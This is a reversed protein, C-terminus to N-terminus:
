VVEGLGVARVDGMDQGVRGVAPGAGGALDVRGEQAGMEARGLMAIPEIDQAARGRHDLGDFGAEDFHADGGGVDQGLQEAIILNKSFVGLAGRTLSVTM